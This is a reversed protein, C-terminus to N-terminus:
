RLERSTFLRDARLLGIITPADTIEGRDVMRLAEAFPVRRHQLLETGEPAAGVERLGTALWVLLREDSHSNTLHVEGGLPTWVAAELGAEERLERRAAALPDEGREAGGEVLEWSYNGTAYRWQGVLVVERATTLAVVATAVKAEVVGYIGDKGDPRVVQDERVTIWPNRYVLRSGKTVWPNGFPDRAM